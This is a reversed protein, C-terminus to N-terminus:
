NGHRVADAPWGAAFLAFRSDAQTPARKDVTMPRPQRKIPLHAPPGLRATPIGAHQKTAAAAARLGATLAAAAILM